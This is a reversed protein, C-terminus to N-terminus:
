DKECFIVEQYSPLNSAGDTTPNSVGPAGDSSRKTASSGHAPITMSHLHLGANAVDTDDWTAKSASQYRFAPGGGEGQTPLSHAHDGDTTTVTLVPPVTHTHEAVGTYDHTHNGGSGGSGGPSQGSQAGRAFRSDLATFRSWGPPCTGSYLTTIDAELYAVITGAPAGVIRVWDSPGSSGKSIYLLGNDTEYYIEREYTPTGSRSASVGAQVRGAGLTTSIGHDHSDGDIVHGGTLGDHWTLARGVTHYQTHADPDIFDDLDAHDDRNGSWEWTDEVTALYVKETDTAVYVKNQDPTAAKGADTGVLGLYQQAAITADKLTNLHQGSFPLFMPEGITHSQAATGRVGRVCSVFSENDGAAAECYFIEGTTVFTVYVPFDIDGLNGLVPITTVTDNITSQLEFNRQDILDGLLSSDDDYATPM